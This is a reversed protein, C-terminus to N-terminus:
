CQSIQLLGLGLIHKLNQFVASDIGPLSGAAVWTSCMQFYEYAYGLMICQCM